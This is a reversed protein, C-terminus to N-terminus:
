CFIRPLLTVKIAPEFRHVYCARRSDDAIFLDIGVQISTDWEGGM